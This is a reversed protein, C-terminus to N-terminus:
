GTAEGDPQKLSLEPGIGPTILPTCENMGFKELVSKSYDEQSITLTGKERDRTVQMGLGLSVNRMGNLKFRSMIKKKLTELLEGGGGALLLDDVYPTLIAVVGEEDHLCLRM